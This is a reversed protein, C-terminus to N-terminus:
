FRFINATFKLWYISQAVPQDVLNQNKAPTKMEGSRRSWNQLEGWRSDFPYRLEKGGPLAAPAHLQANVEM